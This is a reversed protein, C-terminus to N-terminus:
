KNETSIIEILEVEFDLTANGPIVGSIGNTGYGLDAPIFLRYKGGPQMLKLGETFGPVLRAVDFIVPEQTSDFVTGDSLKGTYTVKVKDTDVPYAGNGKKLTEFVLGSKTKIVNKRKIQEDLFKKQSEISVTDPTENPAILNNLYKEADTGNKFITENGRLSEKLTAIFIDNNVNLGMNELQAIRKLLALGEVIGLHYAENNTSDSFATELGSIFNNVETTNYQKNLRPRMFDGWMTAAAISVSDTAQTLASASVAIYLFITTFLSSKKM